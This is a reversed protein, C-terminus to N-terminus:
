FEQIRGQAKLSRFYEQEHRTGLGVTIRRWKKEEKVPIVIIMIMISYIILKLLM